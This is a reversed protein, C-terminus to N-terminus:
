HKIADLPVLLRDIKEEISDLRHNIRALVAALELAPQRIPPAGTDLVANPAALTHLALSGTRATSLRMCVGRMRHLARGAFRRSFELM